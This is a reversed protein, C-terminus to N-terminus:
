SEVMRSVVSSGNLVSQEALRSRLESIMRCLGQRLDVEPLWGPVRGRMPTVPTSGPKEGPVLVADTEEAIIQAVNLVSVWEFSSIDDGARLNGASEMEARFVLDTTFVTMGAFHYENAGSTLYTLTVASIGLEELLERRLAQEATEGPDVFGGPLDIKGIDPDVARRTVLLRGDRDFILAAM